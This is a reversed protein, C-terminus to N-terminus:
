FQHSRDREVNLDASRILRALLGDSTRDGYVMLQKMLKGGLNYSHFREAPVTCAVNADVHNGVGIDLIWAIRDYLNGRATNAARVKVEKIAKHRRHFFAVNEAMFRHSLDNVHAIRDFFQLLAVANHYWERDRTTTAEETFLSEKRTAVGGVGIRFNCALGHPM